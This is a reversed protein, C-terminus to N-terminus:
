RERWTTKLNRKLIKQTIICIKVNKEEHSQKAVRFRVNQINARTEEYM